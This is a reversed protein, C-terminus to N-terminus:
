LTITIIFSYHFLEPFLASFLLAGSMWTKDNIQDNNANAQLNSLNLDTHWILKCFFSFLLFLLGFLISCFVSLHAATVDAHLNIPAGETSYCSSLMM